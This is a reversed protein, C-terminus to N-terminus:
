DFNIVRRLTKSLSLALAIKVADPIIFPIVCMTLATWFSIAEGKSSSYVIVFWITGFLYCVLLGVIMSLASIILKKGLFKEFLWMILASFIFGIIYGGTPGVLVSVGGKFGSFVPLGVAGLLIYVIVSLTGLKGGLIGVALFVAFTQFTIPVTGINISLWSCIAIISTCLAVNVLNKTSISNTKPNQSSNM